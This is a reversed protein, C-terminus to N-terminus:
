KPQTVRLVQIGFSPSTKSQVARGGAKLNTEGLRREPDSGLDFVTVTVNSEDDKDFTPQFGFRGVGDVSITVTEGERASLHVAPMGKKPVSIELVVVRTASQAVARRVGAATAAGSFWAILLATLM